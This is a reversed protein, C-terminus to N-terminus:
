DESKKKLESFLKKFKNIKPQIVFMCYQNSAKNRHYFDQHYDEAKVYNKYKELTTVIENDFIKASSLKAIVQETTQRQSETHFFVVSRYQTGIDAGQRNFTTPDHVKFFVSLLDAFNIEKPDFTIQCVEAHGSEGSSVEEYNTHSSLGGCYGSEVSRVGNLSQFMPEICWFCGGGFTAKQLGAQLIETM